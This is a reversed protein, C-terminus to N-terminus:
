PVPPGGARVSRDPSPHARFTRTVPSTATVCGPVSWAPLRGHIPQRLLPSLEHQTNRGTRCDSRLREAMTTLGLADDLEAYALLGADSSVRVGHFELRVAGTSGWGRPRRARKVWRM